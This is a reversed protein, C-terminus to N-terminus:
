KYLMQVKIGKDRLYKIYKRQSDLTGKNHIIYRYKFEKVGGMKKMVILGYHDAVDREDNEPIDVDDKFTISDIEPHMFQDSGRETRMILSDKYFYIVGVKFWETKMFSFFLIGVISGMFIILVTIWYILDANWEKLWPGSSGRGGFLLVFCIVIIGVLLVRMIRALLIRNRSVLPVEFEESM